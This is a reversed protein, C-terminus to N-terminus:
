NTSLSYGMQQLQRDFFRQQFYYEDLAEILIKPSGGPHQLRTQIALDILHRDGLHLVEAVQEPTIPLPMQKLQQWMLEGRCTEPSPYNLIIPQRQNVLSELAMPSHPCVECFYADGPLDGHAPLLTPPSCDWPQTLTPAYSLADVVRVEYRRQFPNDVLEVVVDCPGQPLDYHRKDWWHGPISGTSDSLSFGVKRLNPRRGRTEPFKEEKVQSFTARRILLRPQPNGMGYPELQSLEWFLEKGLDSVRVELDIILAPQPPRDGYFQWYRQNLAARLLPLREILVSLGAAFPHGGFRLILDEQGALLEYLDVGAPSRGSGKAVDDEITLLFTAPRLDAGSTRGRDGFDGSAM